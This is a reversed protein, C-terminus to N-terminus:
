ILVFAFVSREMLLQLEFVLLDLVESEFDIFHPLFLCYPLMELIPIILPLFFPLFCGKDFFVKFEFRLKDIHGVLVFMPRLSNLLKLFFYILKFVM